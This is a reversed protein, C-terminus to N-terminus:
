YIYTNVSFSESTMGAAVVVVVIAGAVVALGLTSYRSGSCKSGTEYVRM